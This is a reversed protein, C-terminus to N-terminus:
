ADKTTFDVFLTLPHFTSPSFFSCLFCVFKRIFYIFWFVLQPLCVPFHAPELWTMSKNQLVCSDIKSQGHWLQIISMCLQQFCQFLMLVCCVIVCTLSQWRLEETCRAGLLFAVAGILGPMSLRVGSRCSGASASVLLDRKPQVVSTLSAVVHHAPCHLSLPSFLPQPRTRVFRGM